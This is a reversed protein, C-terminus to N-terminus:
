DFSQLTALPVSTTGLAQSVTYGDTNQTAQVGVRFPQPPPAAKAAQANGMAATSTGTTM